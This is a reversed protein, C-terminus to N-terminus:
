KVKGVVTVHKGAEAMDLVEQATATKLGVAWARHKGGDASVCAETIDKKNGSWIGATVFAQGLQAAIAPPIELSTRDPYVADGVAASALLATSLGAAGGFAAGFSTIFWKVTKSM